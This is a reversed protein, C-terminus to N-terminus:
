AESDASKAAKKTVVVEASGADILAQAQAEDRVEIADGEDYHKGDHSVPSLVTMKM